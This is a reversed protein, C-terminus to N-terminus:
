GTRNARRCRSIADFARWPTARNGESDNRSEADIRGLRFTYCDIDIGERSGESARAVAWAVLLFDKFDFLGIKSFGRRKNILSPPREYCPFLYFCFGLIFRDNFKSSIFFVVFYGQRRRTKERVIVKRKSPLRMVRRSTKVAPIVLGSSGSVSGSIADSLRCRHADTESLQGRLGKHYHNLADSLSLVPFTRYPGTFSSYTTEGGRFHGYVVPFRHFPM